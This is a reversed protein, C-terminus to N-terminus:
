PSFRLSNSVAGKESPQIPEHALRAEITARLQLELLISTSRATTHAQLQALLRNVPISKRMTTPRRNELSRRIVPTYNQSHAPLVVAILKRMAIRTGGLISTNTAAAHAQLQALLRNVLISKRMPIHEMKELFSRSAIINRESHAILVNGTISKQTSIPVLRLLLHRRATTITQLQALFCNGRVSKGKANKRKAELFWRTMTTNGQAQALSM